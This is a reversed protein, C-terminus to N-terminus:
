CVRWRPSRAWRYTSRAYRGSGVDDYHCYNGVLTVSLILGRMNRLGAFDPVLVCFGALVLVLLV